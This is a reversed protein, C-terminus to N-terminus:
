MKEVFQSSLKSEIVNKVWEIDEISKEGTYIKEFIYISGEGIAAVFAGAIIANLVSAGINIGPIAKLASITAKATTSVTGREVISNFSQNLNSM